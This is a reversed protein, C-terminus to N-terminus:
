RYAVFYKDVVNFSAHFKITGSLNVSQASMTVCVHSLDQIELSLHDLVEKKRKEDYSYIKFSIKKAYDDDYVSPILTCIRPIRTSPGLLTLQYM